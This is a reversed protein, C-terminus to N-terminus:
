KLKVVTGSLAVGAVFAGAGCLYQTESDVNANRYVSQINVVANGGEKRARQQLEIVASLFAIECAEEDSKNAANTKKNTTWTGMKREVAPSAQKGFYLKVDDAVKDKFSQGKELASKISLMHRTDRAQALSCTLVLVTAILTSFIPKKM